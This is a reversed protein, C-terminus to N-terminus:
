TERIEIGTLELDGSATDGTATAVRQFRYRFPDGATVSDMDAGDTFTITVPLDPGGTATAVTATAQNNAAFGDIDMLDTTATGLRELAGGLVVVGSIASSMATHNIVTIGGGAYNQPMIGKFYGSETVTDDYDLVNHNSRTDPTPADTAVGEISLPTFGLLSNGSAM